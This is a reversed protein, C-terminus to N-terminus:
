SEGPANTRAQQLEWLARELEWGIRNGVTSIAFMLFGFLGAHWYSGFAMYGLFAGVAAMALTNGVDQRDNRSM